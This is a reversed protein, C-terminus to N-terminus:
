ILSARIHELYIERLRLTIAGPKGGSIERDDIQIVPLVYSSAGSVFAEDANLAQELTFRTEYLKLDNATCLALIARRTVGPLIDDSIPRTLIEGDHVM